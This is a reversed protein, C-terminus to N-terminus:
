EEEDAMKNSKSAKKLTRWATFAVDGYALLGLNSELPIEPLRIIRTSYDDNKM